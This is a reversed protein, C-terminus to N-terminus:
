TPEQMTRMATLMDDPGVGVDAMGVGAVPAIMKLASVLSAVIAAWADDGLWFESATM